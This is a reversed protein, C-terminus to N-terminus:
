KLFLEVDALILRANQFFYYKYFIKYWLIFIAYYEIPIMNPMGFASYNSKILSSMIQTNYGIAKINRLVNNARTYHEVTYTRVWYNIEYDHNISLFLKLIVVLVFTM